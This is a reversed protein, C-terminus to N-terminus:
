YGKKILLQKSITALFSAKHRIAPYIKAVTWLGSYTQEEDM